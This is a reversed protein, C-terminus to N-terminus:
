GLSFMEAVIVFKNFKNIAFDFLRAYRVDLSVGDLWPDKLFLSSAGDGVRKSINDLLWRDDLLGGGMGILNFNQWWVSGGEGEEGYKACLVNYWLSGREELM